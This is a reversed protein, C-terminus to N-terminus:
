ARDLIIPHVSQSKMKPFSLMDIDCFYKKGNKDTEHHKGEPEYSKKGEREPSLVIPEPM